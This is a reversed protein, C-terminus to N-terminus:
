VPKSSVVIHPLTNGAFRNIEHHRQQVSSEAGSRAEKELEEDDLQGPASTTLNITVDDVLSDFKTYVVILPVTASKFLSWLYKFYSM